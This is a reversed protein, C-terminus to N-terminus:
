DRSDLSNGYFLLLPRSLDEPNLLRRGASLRLVGWKRSPLIWCRPLYAFFSALLILTSVGRFEVVM